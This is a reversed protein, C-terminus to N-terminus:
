EGVGIYAPAEVCTVLLGQLLVFRWLVWSFSSSTNVGMHSLSPVDIRFFFGSLLNAMHSPLLSWRIFDGSRVGCTSSISVLFAPTAVEFGTRYSPHMSGFM